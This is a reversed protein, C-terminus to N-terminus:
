DKWQTGNKELGKLEPVLGSGYMRGTMFFLRVLIVLGKRKSANKEEAQAMGTSNSTPRVGGGFFPRGTRPDPSAM